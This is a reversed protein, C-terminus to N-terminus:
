PKQDLQEDIKQTLKELMLTPSVANTYSTSHPETPTYVVRPVPTSEPTSKVIKYGEVNFRVVYFVPLVVAAEEKYLNDQFGDTDDALAPTGFICVSALAVFKLM